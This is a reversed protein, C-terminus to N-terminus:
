GFWLTIYEERNTGKWERITARYGYGRRKVGNKMSVYAVCGAGERIRVYGTAGYMNVNFLYYIEIRLDAAVRRM